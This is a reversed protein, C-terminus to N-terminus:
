FPISDDEGPLPPGGAPEAVRGGGTKATAASYGSASEDGGRRDVIQVSRALIQVSSRKNGERDEFEYWELNGAVVVRTGKKLMPELAEASRGFVIADIYNSRDGWEGSPEKKRTTFALRLPLISGKIEADRTLRAVLTVSNVDEM